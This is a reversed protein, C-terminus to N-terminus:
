QTVVSMVCFLYVSFNEVYFAGMRFFLMHSSVESNRATALFFRTFDVM